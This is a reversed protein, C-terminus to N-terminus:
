VSIVKGCVNLKSLLFIVTGQIRFTGEKQGGSTVFFHKYFFKTPEPAKTRACKTELEVKIKKKSPTRFRVVQVV